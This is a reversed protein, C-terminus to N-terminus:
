RLDCESIRIGCAQCVHQATNAAKVDGVVAIVAEKPHAAKRTGAIVVGAHQEEDVAVSEIVIDEATCQDARFKGEVDVQDLPDFDDTARARRQVARTREKTDDVDDGLTAPRDVAQIQRAAAALKSERLPRTM